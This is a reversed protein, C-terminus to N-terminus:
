DTEMKDAEASQEEEVHQKVGEIFAEVASGGGLPMGGHRMYGGNKVKIQLAESISPLGGDRLAVTLSGLSQMFQPSRLVRRLIDKKQELSLSQMIAEALEPNADGTESVEDELDQALLALSSPLFSLLNDVTDMDASEIVPLTSAPTLLDPLTPFLKDEPQGGRNTQLSQLLNQVVSSPDSSM